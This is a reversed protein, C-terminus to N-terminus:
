SRFLGFKKQNKTLIFLIKAGGLFALVWLMSLFIIKIQKMVSSVYWFANYYKSTEKYSFFMNGFIVITAIFTLFIILISIYNILRVIHKSSKM